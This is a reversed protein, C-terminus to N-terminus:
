PMVMVVVMEVKLASAQGDKPSVSLKNLKILLKSNTMKYLFNCLQEFNADVRMDAKYKKRGEVEEPDIQPNLNAVSLGSEQAIKELERAFIGVAERDSTTKDIQFYSKHANSESLIKDKKKQLDINSKLM